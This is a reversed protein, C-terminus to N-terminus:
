RLTQLAHQVRKMLVPVSFPKAVHDAAGLELARVVEAEGARFTLVIVRCDDLRGADRLRRLVGFGDLGPLGIDLLVVRARLRGTALLEAAEAGDALRRSAYGRTDLAHVLIDSVADDDEVVVVDVDAPDDALELRSATVVRARRAKAAYLARDAARLLAELDAGDDPFQAVGASFSVAPAESPIARHEAERLEEILEAVREVADGSPTGFMGIALEDGGWRAVVDEQRLSALILTGVRRLAADGAARGYRDNIRKLGDIDVLALSLPQGHRGALRMLDSLAQEARRRSTLGTLSDTGAEARVLQSRQVHARVRAQLEPAVVPKAVYDDAGAAFAARITEADTHATLILVPISNWRADGRIVRCIDIGDVEPMTVDLLVVDPRVDELRQWVTAAEAVEVVLLGDGRLVEGVLDRAVDDDDVVLVTAGAAPDGRAVDAVAAVIVDASLDRALFGRAGLRAVRLRDTFSADRALALAPLSADRAILTKLADLGRDGPQDVDVIAAAFTTALSGVTGLGATERTELEFGRAVAAVDLRAALREDPTVLLIRPATAHEEGADAAVTAQEPGHELLDRLATTAESLQLADRCGDDLLREIRRALRTGEALGFTGLSGALKHADGAARLRAGDEVTGEVAALAVAELSAIRELNVARHKEWLTSLADLVRDGRARPPPERAPGPEGASSVPTSM